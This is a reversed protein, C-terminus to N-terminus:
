TDFEYYYLLDNDTDYIAVTFNFSSRGLLAEDSYIDDIDNYNKAFRDVFYYYGNEILPIGIKEALNHWYTTTGKKGGYMMIQLNESLPLTKWDSIQDLIDDPSESCNAKIFYDGDGNFAHEDIKNEIKCSSIDLNIKTKIVQTPSSSCGSIFIILGFLFLLKKNM